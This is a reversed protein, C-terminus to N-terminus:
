VTAFIRWSFTSLDIPESFDLATPRRARPVPSRGNRHGGTNTRGPWLPATPESARPHHHTLYDAIKAALWGPLPAGNPPLAGVEPNGDAM